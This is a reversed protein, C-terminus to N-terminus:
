LSNPEKKYKIYSDNILKFIRDSVLFFVVIMNSVLYEGSVTLKENPYALPHYWNYFTFVFLILYYILRKQNICIESAEISFHKELEERYYFYEFIMTNSFLSLLLIWGIFAGVVFIEENQLLTIAFDLVIISLFFSMGFFLMTKDYFFQVRKQVYTWFTKKITIIVKRQTHMTRKKKLFVSEEAILSSMTLIFLITLVFILLGIWLLNIEGNLGRIIWVAGFVISIIYLIIILTSIIGGRKLEIKGNVAKRVLIQYSNIASEFKNGSRNLIHALLFIVFSFLLCFIISGFFIKM